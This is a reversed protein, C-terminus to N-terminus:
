QAQAKHWTEYDALIRLDEKQNAEFNGEFLSSILRGSFHVLGSAKWSGALWLQHVLLNHFVGVTFIVPDVEFLVLNLHHHMEVINRTFYLNVRPDASVIM